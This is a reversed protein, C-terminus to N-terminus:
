ENKKIYCTLNILLDKLLFLLLPKNEKEKIKM